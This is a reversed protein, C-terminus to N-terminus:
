ANLSIAVGGQAPQRNKMVLPRWLSNKLPKSKSSEASYASLQPM